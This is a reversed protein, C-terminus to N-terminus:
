IAPFFDNRGPYVYFPLITQQILSWAYDMYILIHCYVFTMAMDRAQVDEIFIQYINYYIWSYLVMLDSLHTLLDIQDADWDHKDYRPAM